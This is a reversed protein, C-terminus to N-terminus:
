IIDFQGWPPLEKRRNPRLITYDLTETDIIFAEIHAMATGSNLYVKQQNNYYLEVNQMQHTHGLVVMDHTSLLRLAYKMHRLTNTSAKYGTKIVSVLFQRLRQPDKRYVFRLVRINWWTSIKQVIKWGLPDVQDGHQIIVRDITLSRPYKTLQADHNGRVWKIYPTNLLYEALRRHTGALIESYFFVHLELTDGNLVILEVSNKEKLNELQEILSEDDWTCKDFDGGDGIHLDSLVLIKM